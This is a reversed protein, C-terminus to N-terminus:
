DDDDDAATFVGDCNECRYVDDVIDLTLHCDDCEPCVIDTQEYFTHDYHLWNLLLDDM